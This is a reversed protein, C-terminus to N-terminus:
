VSYKKRPVRNPNLVCDSSAMVIYGRNAVLGRKTQMVSYSAVWRPRMFDIKYGLPAVETTPFKENIKFDTALTQFTWDNLMEPSDAHAGVFMGRERAYARLEDDPGQDQPENGSMRVQVIDPTIGSQRCLQELQQKNVDSIGIKLAEGSARLKGLSRWVKVYRSMDTIAGEPCAATPSTELSDTSSTETRAPLVGLPSGVPSELPSSDLQGTERDENDEDDDEADEDNASIEAFSVILEDIKVMGLQKEVCLLAQKVYMSSPRNNADVAAPLMFIKVSVRYDTIGTVQINNRLNYPDLIELM